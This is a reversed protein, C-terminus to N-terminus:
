WFQLNPDFTIPHEECDVSNADVSQSTYSSPLYHMACASCIQRQFGVLLDGRSSSFCASMLSDGFYIESVLQNTSSWVKLLGDRSTTAFLGLPPCCALSTITDSHSDERQHCLVPMSNFLRGHPLYRNHHAMKLEPSIDLIKVSNRSTTLCLLTEHIAMHRPVTEMQICLNMKLEVHDGKENVRISWVNLFNDTGLSLLCPTSTATAADTVTVPLEPSVLKCVCGGHGPCPQTMTFLSSHLLTIYGNASGGFLLSRTKGKWEVMCQPIDLSM